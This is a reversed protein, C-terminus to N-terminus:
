SFKEIISESLFPQYNYTFSRLKVIITSTDFRKDNTEISPEQVLLKPSKMEEDEGFLDDSDIIM